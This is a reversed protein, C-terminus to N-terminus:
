SKAPAPPSPTAGTTKAASLEDAVVWAAAALALNIANGAWNFHQHPGAVLKPLWVLLGFGVIEATLLRAALGALVGSLIAAAAMFFFVTTAIAWFMQGPPLWKPVWSAVGRMVSLQELGFSIACLGYFRSIMAAKGAWRTGAPALSACLAAGAIVLSLEEFFNGWGDYVAPFRVIQPVWALVFVSYLVTLMAAGRRATPRWTLALGALLECAAAAYALLERHPVGAGVRQWGAAFNGSILGVVGLTIAAAAYVCLGLRGWSGRNGM